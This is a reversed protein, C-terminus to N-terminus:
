KLKEIEEKPLGTIEQIDCIDMNKELMKKAIELQKKREGKELGMKEGKETAVSIRTNEDYIAMEELWYWDQMEKSSSLKKNEENVKAIKENKESAMKIAEENGLILNLWDALEGKPNEIKRFKALDIIHIEIKDTLLQSEGGTFLEEVIENKDKCEEFKIHAISHYEKRNFYSFDIIAIAITKSIENYKKSMGISNIYLKCIYFTTREGINNENKIQMEIAATTGNSLKARIDVIGLKDEKYNRPLETNQIELSDIKIKLIAQLLGKLNEEKGNVGFLNKFMFDRKAPIRVIKGNCLTAGGQDKEYTNENTQEQM